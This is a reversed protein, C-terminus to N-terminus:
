INFLRSWWPKAKSREHELETELRAACMQAQRLLSQADELDQRMTSEARETLELRTRYEAAEATTRKLDAVIELLAREVSEAQGLSDYGGAPIKTDGPIMMQNRLRKLSGIEIELPRARGRKVKRGDLVGQEVYNRITRPTVRLAKAAIETTTWSEESEATIEGTEAKRSWLRSDWAGRKMDGRM